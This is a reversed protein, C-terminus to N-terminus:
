IGYPKESYIYQLAIHYLRDYQTQIETKGSGDDTIHHIFYLPGDFSHCHYFHLGHSEYTVLIDGVRTLVIHHLQLLTSLLTFQMDDRRKLIWDEM